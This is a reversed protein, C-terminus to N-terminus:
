IPSQREGRRRGFSQRLIGRPVEDIINYGSRMAIGFSRHDITGQAGHQRPAARHLGRAQHPAGVPAAPRKAGRVFPGAAAVTAHVAAGRSSALAGRRPIPVLRDVLGLLPERLEGLHRHLAQERGDLRSAQVLATLGDVEVREVPLDEVLERAAQALKHPRHRLHVLADALCQHARLAVRVLELEGVHARRRLPLQGVAAGLELCRVLLLHLLALPRDAALAHLLLQVLRRGLELLQAVCVVGHAELELAEVLREAGRGGAESDRVLPAPRESRLQVRRTHRQALHPAVELPALNRELLM